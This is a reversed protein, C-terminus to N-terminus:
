IPSIGSRGRLVDIAWAVDFPTGDWVAVSRADVTIGASMLWATVPALPHGSAPAPKDPAHLAPERDWPPLVPAVELLRGDPRHVILSGDPHQALTFGGEHVARHHRRCLLVLNELSTGGGDIWHVVHHADCRRSSCGPFQCQTDRALLARRIALPITRTKRGVDLVTSNLDHHMVVVSADCSLRRSTEASVYTAGDDVELAGDFPRPEIDGTNEATGVVCRPELGSSVDLRGERRPACVPALVDGTPRSAEVHLVVQYRDGATGRDLDAALATEALLGLADARRQGSTVEEAMSAPRPAGASERILRDAAAELARHVVAGIEPTLRGRIVVMGDDDVWTSLERRLHRVETERAAEVRDVRRWARVFREVHAATGAVAFDLLVRENEPTAVRTLARVKAYSITGRQMAGSVRPLTTLAKAVRVKERAAGLDIGTRWHLWHACSLFGNNWGAREDFERLLVLLEYTAAHLRAALEAIAEGIGDTSRSRDLALMTDFPSSPVSDVAHTSTM